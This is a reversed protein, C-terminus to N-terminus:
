NARKAIDTRCLTFEAAVSAGLPVKSSERQRRTELKVVAKHTKGQPLKERTGGKSLNSDFM